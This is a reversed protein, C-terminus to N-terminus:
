GYYFYNPEADVHSAPFPSRPRTLVFLVLCVLLSASLAGLWQPFSLRPIYVSNIRVVTVTDDPPPSTLAPIAGPPTSVKKKAPTKRRRNRGM